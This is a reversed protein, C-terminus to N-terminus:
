RADFAQGASVFDTLRVRAHTESSYALGEVVLRTAMHLTRSKASWTHLIRGEAADHTYPAARLRVM